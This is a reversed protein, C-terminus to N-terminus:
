AGAGGGDEEVMKAFHPCWMIPTTTACGIGKDPDSGDAWDPCNACEPTLYGDLCCRYGSM